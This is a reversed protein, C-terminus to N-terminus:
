AGNLKNKRRQGHVQKGGQDDMILSYKIRDQNQRHRRCSYVSHYSHFDVIQINIQSHRSEHQCCSDKYPDREGQDQQHNVPLSIIGAYFCPSLSETEM